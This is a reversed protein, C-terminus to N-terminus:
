IRATTASLADALRQWLPARDLIVDASVAMGHPVAAMAAPLEAVTVLARYYAHEMADPVADVRSVEGTVPGFEQYPYGAYRMSVPKGPTVRAAAASPLRLEVQHQTADATLTLLQSGPAVPM